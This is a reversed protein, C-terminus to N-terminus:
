PILEEPKRGGYMAALDDAYGQGVIINRNIIEIAWTLRLHHSGVRRSVKDVCM